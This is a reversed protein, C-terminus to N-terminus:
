GWQTHWAGNGGSKEEVTFKDNEQPCTFHPQPNENAITSIDNDGTVFRGLAGYGTANPGYGLETDNDWRLWFVLLIIRNRNKKEEM